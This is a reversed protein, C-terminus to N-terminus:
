RTVEKCEVIEVRLRALQAARSEQYKAWSGEHYEKLWRLTERRSYESRYKNKRKFAAEHDTPLCQAAAKEALERSGCFGFAYTNDESDFIAWAHTYRRETMRKIPAGVSFAAHYITKM